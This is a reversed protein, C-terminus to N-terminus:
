SDNVEGVARALGPLAWLFPETKSFKLKFRYEFWEEDM